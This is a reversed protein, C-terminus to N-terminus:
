VPVKMWVQFANDLAQWSVAAPSGEIIESRSKVGCYGRVWEAVDFDASLADTAYQEDSLFRLFAVEACRMACQAPLPMEGFKRRKTDGKFITKGGVRIEDDYIETLRVNPQTPPESAPKETPKAPNIRALAVPCEVAPNPTGFAAIFAAAQEIPIEVTIAAVSRTKVFRLDCYSGQFAIPRSM